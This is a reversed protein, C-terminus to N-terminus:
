ISKEHCLVSSITIIVTNNFLYIHTIPTPAPPPPICGKIQTNLNEFKYIMVSDDFKGESFQNWKIRLHYWKIELQDWENELHYWKM